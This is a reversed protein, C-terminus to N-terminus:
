DGFLENGLVRRLGGIQEEGGVVDQLGHASECEEIGAPFSSGRQRMLM